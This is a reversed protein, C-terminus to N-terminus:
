QQAAWELVAACYRCGYDCSRIKAKCYDIDYQDFRVMGNTMGGQKAWTQLRNDMAMGNVPQMVREEGYAHYGYPSYGINQMGNGYMRQMANESPVRAPPAYAPPVFRMDHQAIPREETFHAAMFVAVVALVAVGAAYPLFKAARARLTPRPAPPPCAADASAPIPEYVAAM